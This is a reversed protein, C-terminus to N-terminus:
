KSNIYLVSDVVEVCESNSFLLNFLSVPVYTKGEILTPAVGLSEAKTLGIAKSSAKFYSDLGLEITTKISGNDIIASNTAEDWIVEFGLEEAIMRLPIMVIGNRVTVKVDELQKGNIYIDKILLNNVKALLKDMNVDLKEVTKLIQDMEDQSIKDNWKTMPYDNLNIIGLEEAKKMYPMAYHTDMIRPLEGTIEKVIVRIFECTTLSEAKKDNDEEVDNNEQIPAIVVKKATAQAPISLTMVDFWAFIISDQNIDQISVINKTKYPSIPTDNLITISYFGDESLVKIGDNELETVEKVNIMTAVSKNEEVNTLIAFAASQPPISRTMAQSHYVYIEDGAKINKLLTAEGTVNDILLTSESVNFIMENIDNNSKVKVRIQNEEVAEVVAYTSEFSKITQTADIPANIPMIDAAFAIPSASMVIAASLVCVTLKKFRTKFKM